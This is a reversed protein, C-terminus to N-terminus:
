KMGKRFQRFDHLAQWGIGVIKPINISNVGGQRPKFTIKKFHVKENYYVFFTTMMINPINYELPLRGLYKKVLGTNMLRFPANADPVRVGFFMWLLFCVVQEVFARSKGDGRVKRYGLVADYKKRLNWFSEFEDPSTQGDSDTESWSIGGANSDLDFTNCRHKWQGCDGTQFRQKEGGFGSVM